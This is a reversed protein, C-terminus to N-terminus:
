PGRHQMSLRISVACVGGAAAPCCARCVLSREVQCHRQVPWKSCCWWTLHLFTLASRHAPFMWCPPGGGHWDFGCFGGGLQCWGAQGCRAGPTTTLKLVRGDLHKIHVTAGCLAEALTIKKEIILDINVRKFTEHEKQQIILVVDGPALGPESCGAEGRLVIKSGQKMGQEIHVENTKKESVLCKGKCSPCQDGAPVM